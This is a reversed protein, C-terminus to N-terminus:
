RCDDRHRIKALERWVLKTDTQDPWWLLEYTTPEGNAGPICDSLRSGFAHWVSMVEEIESAIQCEGRFAKVSGLAFMFNELDHIAGSARDNPADTPHM